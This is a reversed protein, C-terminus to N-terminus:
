SFFFFSSVLLFGAYPEDKPKSAQKQNYLEKHLLNNTGSLLEQLKNIYESAKTTVELLKLNSLKSIIKSPIPDLLELDNLESQIKYMNLSILEIDKKFN